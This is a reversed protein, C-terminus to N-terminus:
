FTCNFDVGIDEEHPVKVAVGLASLIYQALYESRNGQYFSDLLLGPM